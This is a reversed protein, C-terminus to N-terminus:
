IRSKSKLAQQLSKAKREEDNKDKQVKMAEKKEKEKKLNEDFAKQCEENTCVIQSYEVTTNGSFTPLVEKWTKAIKRKSGCRECLEDVYETHKMSANM